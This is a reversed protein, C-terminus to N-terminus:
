GRSPELMERRAKASLEPLHHEHEMVQKLHRLRQPTATEKMLDSHTHDLWFRASGGIYNELEHIEETTACHGCLNLTFMRRRTSGGFSAHMLNHNFVVVDGPQSELAVCPVDQPAIDWLEQSKAARHAEWFQRSAAHHSGPIVRLCGGERAVPDLYLAIKVYLGIEHFGDSHWQTDGTYYNGDSGVYNWDEGLLSTAVDHIHPHDLLACLRRRQDVFPVICTRKTADHDVGRDRFVNEFEDTIWSTDERLLGPLALYGFTQFFRRQGQSLSM